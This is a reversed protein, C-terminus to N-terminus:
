MTFYRLYYFLLPATLPVLPVPPVSPGLRFPLRGKGHSSRGGQYRLDPPAPAEVRRRANNRGGLISLAAVSSAAAVEDGGAHTVRGEGIRRRNGTRAVCRVGKILRLRAWRGQCQEPPGGYHCIGPGQGTGGREGSGHPCGTILLVGGRSPKLAACM